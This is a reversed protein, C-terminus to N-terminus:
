RRIGEAVERRAQGLFDQFPRPPEEVIVRKMVPQIDREYHIEWRTVTRKKKVTREITVKTTASVLAYIGVSLVYGAITPIPAEKMEHEMRSITVEEKVLYEEEVVVPIRRERLVEEEVEVETERKVIEQHACLHHAKDEIRKRIHQMTDTAVLPTSEVHTLLDNLQTEPQGESPHKSQWFVLRSGIALEEMTELLFDTRSDILDPDARDMKSAVVIISDKVADGFGKVLEEVSKRLQLTDGSMSDFVLFRVQRIDQLVLQASARESMERGTFRLQTDNWGGMDALFGFEHGVSFITAQCTSSCGNGTGLVPQEGETVDYYERLCKVFSSKGVQSPGFAVLALNRSTLTM